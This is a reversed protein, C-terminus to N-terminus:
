VLFVEEGDLIRPHLYGNAPNGVTVFLDRGIQDCGIPPLGAFPLSTGFNVAM